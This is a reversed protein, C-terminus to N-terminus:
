MRRDTSGDPLLRLLETLLVMVCGFTGEGLKTM